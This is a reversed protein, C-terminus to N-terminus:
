FGHVYFFYSFSGQLQRMGRFSTRESKVCQCYLYPAFHETQEIQRGTSPIEIIQFDVRCIGFFKALAIGGDTGAIVHVFTM